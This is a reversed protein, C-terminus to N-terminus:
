DTLYFLNTLQQIFQFFFIYKIITKDNNGRIMPLRKTFMIQHQVPNHQIFVVDM